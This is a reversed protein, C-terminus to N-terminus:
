ALKVKVNRAIRQTIKDFDPELGVLHAFTVCAYAYPFGWWPLSLRVTKM